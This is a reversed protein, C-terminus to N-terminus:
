VVSKRDKILEGGLVFTVIGVIISFYSYNKMPSYYNIISESRWYTAVLPHLVIGSVIEIIAFLVFIKGIKDM